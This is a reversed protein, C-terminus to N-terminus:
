FDNFLSPGDQSDAKSRSAKTKPPRATPPQDPPLPREQSGRYFYREFLRSYDTWDGQSSDLLSKVGALKADLDDILNLAMAELTQPTKPSGFELLGHHSLILHAIEDALEAPFDPPLHNRVLDVGLVVHGLMRGSTTYEPAPTFTLELAKGVDHLLAGTLLLDRHLFPYREAAALALRAVALTHELLGGLYAHHVSKAAPAQYFLDWFSEDSFLSQCLEKFPPALSAVLDKLEATMDEVPRPSSPLFRDPAAQQPDVPKLDVIVIQKQGKFSSIRGKFWIVDGAQFLKDLREAEEWVRGAIRGDSDGLTLALYHSGSKTKHLSKELVLLQAELAQNEELGVVAGPETM